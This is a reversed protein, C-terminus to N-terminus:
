EKIAADLAARTWANPSFLYVRRGSPVRPRPEDTSFGVSTRCLPEAFDEGSDLYARVRKADAGMRFLMPVAEDVPLGELWTDGIGWSALATMSLPMAAPLASRLDLLLARYFARQSRAADFDIQVASTGEDSARARVAAVVAGRQRDSLTPRADRDTEVRFVAIRVADPPFSIPQLRPRVACDDGRLEITCDLYAIGVERPDVFRLDEPREWAWLITKPFGVLRASEVARSRGPSAALLAGAVCAAVAAGIAIRHVPRFV